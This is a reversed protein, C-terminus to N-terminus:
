CKYPLRAIAHVSEDSVLQCGAMCCSCGLLRGDFYTSTGPTQIHRTDASTWGDAIILIFFTILPISKSISPVSISETSRWASHQCAANLCKPYSIGNEAM